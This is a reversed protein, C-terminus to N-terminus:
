TCAAAGSPFTSMMGSPPTDTWSQGDGGMLNIAYTFPTDVYVPSPPLLNGNLLQLCACSCLMCRCTLNLWPQHSTICTSPLLLCSCMGQQCPCM